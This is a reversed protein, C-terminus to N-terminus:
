SVSATRPSRAQMLLIPRQSRRDILGRRKLDGVVWSCTRPSPYLYTRCAAVPIRRCFVTTSFEMASSSPVSAASSNEDPIAAIRSRNERQYPPRGVDNCLLVDIAAHRLKRATAASIPRQSWRQRCSRCQAARPPSGASYSYDNMHLRWGIRHHLHYIESFIAASPLFCQSIV